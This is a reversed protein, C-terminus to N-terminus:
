RLAEAHPFQLDLHLHSNPSAATPSTSGGHDRDKPILSKADEVPLDKLFLSKCTFYKYIFLKSLMALISAFFRPLGHHTYYNIVDVM